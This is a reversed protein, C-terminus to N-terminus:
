KGLSAKFCMRVIKAEWSALIVPTLWQYEDKGLQKEMAQLLPRAVKKQAPRSSLNEGDGGGLYSLNCAHIM